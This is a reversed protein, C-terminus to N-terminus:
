TKQIISKISMKRGALATISFANISGAKTDESTIELINM